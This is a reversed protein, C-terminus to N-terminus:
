GSVQYETLMKQGHLNIFKKIHLKIQIQNGPHDPSTKDTVRTYQGNGGKRQLCVCGGIMMNGGRAYDVTKSIRGVVDTMRWIRMIEEDRNFLVLIERGPVDSFSEKIIRQSLPEIIEKFMERRDLPFLPIRRPSRSKALILERLVERVADSLEYRQTFNDVTLRTLQNYGANEKYAKISADINRGSSFGIKVDCKNGTGTLMTSSFDGTIRYAAKLVEIVDSHNAISDRFRIEGEKGAAANTNRM